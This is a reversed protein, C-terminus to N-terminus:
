RKNQPQTIKQPAKISAKKAKPKLRETNHKQFLYRKRARIM